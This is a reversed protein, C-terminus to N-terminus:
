GALRVGLLDALVQRVDQYRIFTTDARALATDVDDYADHLPPILDTTTVESRESRAAKLERGIQDIATKYSAAIGEARQLVSQLDDPTLSRGSYQRELAVVQLGVATAAEGARTLHSGIGGLHGSAQVQTGSWPLGGIVRLAPDQAIRQQAQQFDQEAQRLDAAANQLQTADAAKQGGALAAQAAVLNARGSDLDQYVEKARFGSYGIIGVAAM